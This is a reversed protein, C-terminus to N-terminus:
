AWQNEEVKTLYIIQDELDEDFTVLEYVKFKGYCKEKEYIGVIEDNNLGSSKDTGIKLARGELFFHTYLYNELYIKKIEM